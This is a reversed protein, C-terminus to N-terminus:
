SYSNQHILSIGYQLRFKRTINYIIGQNSLVTNRELLDALLELSCSYCVMLLFELLGIIHSVAMEGLTRSSVSSGLKSWDGDFWPWPPGHNQDRSESGDTTTECVTHSSGLVVLKSLVSLMFCSPPVVSCRLRHSHRSIASIASIATIIGWNNCTIRLTNQMKPCDGWNWRHKKSINRTHNHNNNGGM